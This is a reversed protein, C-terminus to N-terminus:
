EAALAAKAALVADVPDDWGDALTTWGGHDQDIAVEWGLGPERNHQVTWKNARIAEWAKHEPEREALAACLEKVKAGLREYSDMVSAYMIRDDFCWLEAKAFEFQVALADRAETMDALAAELEEVEDVLVSAVETAIYNDDILEGAHSSNRKVAAIAEDVRM